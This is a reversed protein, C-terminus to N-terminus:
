YPSAQTLVWKIEVQKNTNLNILTTTQHYVWLLPYNEKLNQQIQESMRNASADGDAMITMAVLSKQDGDTDAKFALLYQTM